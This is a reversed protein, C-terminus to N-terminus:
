QDATGQMRRAGDRQTVRRVAHGRRHAEAELACLLTSKGTGHSGVIEGRRGSALFREYLAEASANADDEFCYALAGPEHYRTSFPNVAAGAPFADTM